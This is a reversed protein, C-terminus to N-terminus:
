HGYFQQERHREEEYNKSEEQSDKWKLTRHARQALRDKHKRTEEPIYARAEPRAVRKPFRWLDGWMAKRSWRYGFSHPRSKSISIREFKEPGSCVDVLTHKGARIAPLVIRPWFYSKEHATTADSESSLLQRPGPKKRIVLYSYKEEELFNKTAGKNYVYHPTRRVRQAFHCWDKGTLAMPCMGEHPCPAVFHFNEAGIRAILLERAHHMFRFGTPTGPEILVLVGGYDLRNWLQKVLADRSAQGRVEMQVYSAIILDSKHTGEDYLCRQWSVEPLPISETIAKGLQTMHESPEIAIAQEIVGPWVEQVAALSPAPGAGYDLVRVPKFDPARRALEHLIRFNAVWTAPYRHALYTLAAEPSWFMQFLRSRRDQTHAKALRSLSSDDLSTTGAHAFLDKFIPNKRLRAIPGGDESETEPLFQSSLVSPVETATRSRIRKVMYKGYQELDRKQGFDRLMRVIKSKIAFPVDQTKLSLMAMQDLELVKQPTVEDSEFMRDFKFGRHISSSLTSFAEHETLGEGVEESATETESIPGGGSFDRAGVVASCVPLNRRLPLQWFPQRLAPQGICSLVCRRTVGAM